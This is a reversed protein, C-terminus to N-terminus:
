NSITNNTQASDVILADILLQQKECTDMLMKIALMMQMVQFDIPRENATLVFTKFDILINEELITRDSGITQQIAKRDRYMKKETWEIIPQTNSETKETQQTPEM